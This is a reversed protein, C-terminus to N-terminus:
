VTQSGSPLAEEFPQTTSSKVVVRGGEVVTCSKLVTKGYNVRANDASQNCHETIQQQQQNIVVICCACAPLSMNLVALEVNIIESVSEKISASLTHLSEM